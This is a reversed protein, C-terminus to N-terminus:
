PKPMNTFILPIRKRDSRDTVAELAFASNCDMSDEDKGWDGPARSRTREWVSNQCLKNTCCQPCMYNHKIVSLWKRFQILEQQKCGGLVSYLVNTLPGLSFSWCLLEGGLGAQLLVFTQLSRKAFTQNRALCFHEVHNETQSPNYLCWFYSGTCSVVLRLAGTVQRQHWRDM